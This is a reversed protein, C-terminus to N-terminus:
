DDEVLIAIKDSKCTAYTYGSKEETDFWACWDGCDCSNGNSSVHPCTFSRQYDPSVLSKSGEPNTSLKARKM